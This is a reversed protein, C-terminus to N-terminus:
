NFGDGQFKREKFLFLYWLLFLSFCNRSLFDPNSFKVKCQLNLKLLTKMGTTTIPPVHHLHAPQKQILHMTLHPATGEHSLELPFHSNDRNLHSTQRGIGQHMHPVVRLNWVPDWCLIHRKGLALVTILPVKNRLCCTWWSIQLFIFKRFAQQSDNCCWM